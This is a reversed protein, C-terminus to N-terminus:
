YREVHKNSIVIISLALIILFVFVFFVRRSIRLCIFNGRWSPLRKMLSVGSSVDPRDSITVIIYTYFLFRVFM